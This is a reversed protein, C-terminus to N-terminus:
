VSGPSPPATLASLENDTNRIGCGVKFRTLNVLTYRVSRGGLAVIESDNIFGTLVVQVGCVVEHLNVQGLPRLPRQQHLSLIGALPGGRAGSTVSRIGIASNSRPTSSCNDPLQKSLGRTGSHFAPILSSPRHPHSSPRLNVEPGPRKKSSKM